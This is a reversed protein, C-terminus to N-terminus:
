ARCERNTKKKKVRPKRGSEEVFQQSPLVLKLQALKFSDARTAGRTERRWVRLSWARERDKKM